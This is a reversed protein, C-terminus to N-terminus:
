LSRSLVTKWGKEIGQPADGERMPCAELEVVVAGGGPQWNFRDSYPWWLKQGPRKSAIKAEIAVECRSEKGINSGATTSYRAGRAPM